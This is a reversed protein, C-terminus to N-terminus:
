YGMAEATYDRQSQEVMHWDPFATGEVTRANLQHLEARQVNHTSLRGDCDTGDTNIQRRVDEDTYTWVIGESSWGEEHREGHWWRLSKGPKLTLRVPSGNCYEWFRVNVGSV